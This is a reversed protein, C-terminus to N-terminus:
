FFDVFIEGTDVIMYVDVYPEGGSTTPEDVFTVNAGMDPADTEWGDNKQKLAFEFMYADVYEGDILYSADPPSGAPAKGDYYAASMEAVVGRINAIDTAERAKELQTTFVPIAVAVLVAIIAVVILLEAMTFGKKSNRIM